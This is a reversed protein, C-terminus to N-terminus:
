NLEIVCSNVLWGYMDSLENVVLEEFAESTVFQELTESPDKLDEIDELFVELPFAETDPLDEVYEDDTDWDIESILVTSDPGFQESVENSKIYRKM